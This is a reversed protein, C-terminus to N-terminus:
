KKSLEDCYSLLQAMQQHTAKKFKIKNSKMYRSIDKQYPTFSDLLNKKSKIRKASGDRILYHNIQTESYKGFPDVKSYMKVLEKKYKTVFIFSGSYVLDVFGKVEKTPFFKTAPYFNSQFFDFQQIFENNLQIPFRAGSKLTVLLILKDNVIDYKLSEVKFIKDCISLSAHSFIDDQFYPNGDAQVNSHTYAFGNILAEDSGYVGSTYQLLTQLIAKEDTKVQTLSVLPFSFLFVIFLYILRIM